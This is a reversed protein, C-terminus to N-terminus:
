HPGLYGRIASELPTPAPLPTPVDFQPCTRAPPRDPGMYKIWESLSFNRGAMRCAGEIWRGAELTWLNLVGNEGIALLYHDDAGVFTLAAVPEMLNAAFTQAGTKQDWVRVDRGAASAVNLGSRAIALVTPANVHGRMTMHAPISWHWDPGGFEKLPYTKILGESCNTAYFGGRGCLGVAVFTSSMAVATPFNTMEFLATRRDGPADRLDTIDVGNEQSYIWGWGLDQGDELDLGSPGRDSSVTERYNPGAARARAALDWLVATEASGVSLAAITGNLLRIARVDATGVRLAQDWSRHEADYTTLQGDKFGVLVKAANEEAVIASVRATVSPIIEELRAGESRYLHGRDDLLVLTPLTPLVVADLWRRHTPALVEFSAIPHSAANVFVALNSGIVVAHTGDPSTRLGRPPGKLEAVSARRLDHSETGTSNWLYISGDNMGIALVGRRSRAAVSGLRQFGSKFAAEAPAVTNVFLNSRYKKQFDDVNMDGYDRSRDHEEVDCAENLDSDNGSLLRSTDCVIFDNLDTTIVIQRSDKTFSASAVENVGDAVSGMPVSYQVLEEARDVDWIVVQEDAGGSVLKTGDPSFALTTINGDHEKLVGILQPNLVVQLADRSESSADIGFAEIALLVALEPSEQAQTRAEIALYRALAIRAQKEARTANEDARKAALTAQTANDNARNGNQVAVRWFVLAAILAATV